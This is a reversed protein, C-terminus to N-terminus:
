ITRTPRESPANPPEPYRGPPYSARPPIDTAARPTVGVTPEHPDYSPVKPSIRDAAQNAMLAFVFASVVARWNTTGLCVGMGGAAPDTCQWLATGIAALALLGAMALRQGNASMRDFATNLGPVYNILVSLIMGAVASLAQAEM